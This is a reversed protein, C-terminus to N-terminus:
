LGAIAELDTAKATIADAVDQVFTPTVAVRVTGAVGHPKTTFPVDYAEHAINDAGLEVVRAPVGVDFLDAM